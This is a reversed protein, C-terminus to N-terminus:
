WTTWHKKKHQQSACRRRSFRRSRCTSAIPQGKGSCPSTQRCTATCPARPSRCPGARNRLVPQCKTARSCWRRSPWRFAARWRVRNAQLRWTWPEHLGSKFLFRIKIPRFNWGIKLRKMWCISIFFFCGSFRNDFWLSLTGSWSQNVLYNGLWYELWSVSITWGIDSNALVHPLHQIESGSYENHCDLEDFCKNDM